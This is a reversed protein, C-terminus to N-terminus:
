GGSEEVGAVPHPSSDGTAFTPVDGPFTQSSTSRGGRGTPMAPKRKM